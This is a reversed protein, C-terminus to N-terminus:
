LLFSARLIEHRTPVRKAAACVVSAEGGTLYITALVAGYDLKEHDYSSLGDVAM